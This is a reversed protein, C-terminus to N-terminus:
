FFEKKKKKSNDNQKEKIHKCICMIYLALVPLLTKLPFM